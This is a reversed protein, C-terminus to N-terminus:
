AAGRERLARWVALPVIATLGNGRLDIVAAQWGDLQHDTLAERHRHKDHAPDRICGCHGLPPLRKAAEHRRRHQALFEEGYGAPRNGSNPEPPRTIAPDEDSARDNSETM